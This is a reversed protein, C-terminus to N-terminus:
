THVTDSSLARAKMQRRALAEQKKREIEEVSCKRSVDESVFVKTSQLFTDSLQRKLHETSFESKQILTNSHKKSEVLAQTDASKFNSLGGSNPHVTNLPNAQSKTRTFTFKSPAVSSKGTGTQSKQVIQSHADVLSPNYYEAATLSNCRSLNMPVQCQKNNSTLDGRCTSAGAVTCTNAVKQITNNSSSNYRAANGSFKSTVNSSCPAIHSLTKGTGFQKSQQEQNGKTKVSNISDAAKNEIKIIGGNPIESQTLREVDDCMQYLLDDDEENAEWLSDSECFMNLVDDSFKPDDWEDLPVSTKDTSKQKQQFNYTLAANPVNTKQQFNINQLGSMESNTNCNKPGERISLSEKENFSKTPIRNSPGETYKQSKIPLRTGTSASPKSVLREAKNVTLGAVKKLDNKRAVENCNSDCLNQSVFKFSNLKKLAISSVVSGKENTKLIVSDLARQHSRNITQGPNTNILDPNQTIEMVFSDDEPFDIGWDDEFDDHTKMKKEALMHVKKQKSVEKSFFSVSNTIQSETAGLKAIQMGQKLNTSDDFKKSAIKNQLISEGISSKVNEPLENASSTSIESLTQSLRGSIKQTSCDFLAHLADETNQDVPKEFNSFSSVRSSQSASKLALEIEEEPIDELFMDVDSNQVTGLCMTNDDTSLHEHQDQPQVTEVMNRDFQKALKMLEDETHLSRTRMSMKTRARAVLPTSPIADDGIWM